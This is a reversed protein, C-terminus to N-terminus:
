ASGRNAGANRLRAGAIAFLGIALPLLCWAPHALLPEPGLLAPLLAFALSGDTPATLPGGDLFPTVAFLDLAVLAAFIAFYAGSTRMRFLSHLLSSVGTFMVFYAFLYAPVPWAKVSIAAAVVSSVAAYLLTATYGESLIWIRSIPLASSREPVGSWILVFFYFPLMGLGVFTARARAVSVLGPFASPFWLPVLFAILSVWLLLKSYASSSKEGSTLIDATLRLCLLTLLALMVCWWSFWAANLEQALVVSLSGFGSLALQGVFVLLALVNYGRSIL